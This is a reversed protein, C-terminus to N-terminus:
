LFSEGNSIDLEINNNQAGSSKLHDEGEVLDEDELELSMELKGDGNM